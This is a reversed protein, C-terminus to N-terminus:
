GSTTPATQLYLEPASSVIARVASQDVVNVELRPDRRLNAVTHPSALNAFALHDEDLGSLTGTPSVAPSGDPRVTAVFGLGEQCVLREIDTTLLVRESCVGHKSHQSSGVRTPRTEADQRAASESERIHLILEPTGGASGDPVEGVARITDFLL